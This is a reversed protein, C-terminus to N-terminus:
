LESEVNSLVLVRKTRADLKKYKRELKLAESRTLHRVLVAGVVPKYIRTFKAGKGTAHKKYRAEYDNTIGIYTMQVGQANRCIIGYLVWEDESKPTSQKKSTGAM